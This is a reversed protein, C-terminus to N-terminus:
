GDLKDLQETAKLLHTEDQPVGRNVKVFMHLVEKYPVDEEDFIRVSLQSNVFNHQDRFDLDTFYHGRYQFQNTYFRWLTTLRQQGDIVASTYDNKKPIKVENGDLNIYTVVEESDKYNYGAHRSFILSGIGIQNFISDILAEQNEANWVYDRQYRPDCVIGSHGMMHFLSSLDMTSLQGPLREAFFIPAGTNGSDLKNVDFWWWILTGPSSIPNGYNNDMRIFEVRYAKGGHLVEAIICDDLNGVRCEDGVEFMRTPTPIIKPQVKDFQNFAEHAKEIMEKTIM